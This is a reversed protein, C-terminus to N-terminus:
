CWGSLGVNTRYRIHSGDITQWSKSVGFDIMFIKQALEKFDKESKSKSINGIVFNGLKMDLHLLGHLHLHEIHDIMAIGIKAVTEKCFHRGCTKFLEDLNLGLKQMVLINGNRTTNPLRLTVNPFLAEPITM